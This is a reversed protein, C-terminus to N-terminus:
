KTTKPRFKQLRRREDTVSIKALSVKYGFGQLRRVAHRIGVRSFFPMTLPNDSRSIIGYIVHFEEFKPRVKPDFVRFAKPLKEQILKRYTDDVKFFEASVVGQYFLHSLTSSGGYRKIHILEKAKTFVDCFEMQGGQYTLNRDMLCYEGSNSDVLSENYEAENDVDYDLLKKAYRPVKEFSDNVQKVFDYELRYWKGANLVYSVGKQDLECYLCKFVPWSRMLQDNEGMCYVKRQKLTTLNLSEPKKLANLFSDLHIDYLEPQRDAESYRFGSVRSWDLVDPVALWCHDLERDRIM